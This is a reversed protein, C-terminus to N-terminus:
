LGPGVPIPAEGAKFELDLKGAIWTRLLGRVKEYVGGYPALAREGERPKFLYPLNMKELLAEGLLGYGPGGLRNVVARIQAASLPGLRYGKEAALQVILRGTQSVDGLTSHVLRVLDRAMQDFDVGMHPLWGAVKDQLDPAVQNAPMQFKLLAEAVATLQSPDDELQLATMDRYWMTHLTERRKVRNAMYAAEPAAEKLLKAVLGHWNDTLYEQVFGFTTVQIPLDGGRHEFPLAQTERIERDLEEESLGLNLLILKYPTHHTLEDPLWVRNNFRSLWGADFREAREDIALGFTEAACETLLALRLIGALDEESLEEPLTRIVARVDMQRELELFEGPKITHGPEVEIRDVLQDLRKRGEASPRAFQM